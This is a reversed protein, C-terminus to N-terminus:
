QPLCVLQIKFDSLEQRASGLESDRTQLAATARRLKEQVIGVQEKANRVEHEM